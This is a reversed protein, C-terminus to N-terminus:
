NSPQGRTNITEKIKNEPSHVFLRLFGEMLPLNHLDNRARFKLFYHKTLGNYRYTKKLSVIEEYTKGLRQGAFDMKSEFIEM